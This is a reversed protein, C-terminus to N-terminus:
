RGARIGITSQAFNKHIGILFWQYWSRKILRARCTLGKAHRSCLMGDLPVMHVIVRAPHGRFLFNTFVFGRILGALFIFCL